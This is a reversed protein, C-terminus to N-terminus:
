REYHSNASMSTSLSSIYPSRADAGFGEDYKPIIGVVAAVTTYDAGAFGVRTDNGAFCDKHAIGLHNPCDLNSRKARMSLCKKTVSTGKTALVAPEKGLPNPSAPSESIGFDSSRM